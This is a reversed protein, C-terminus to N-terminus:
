EPDNICQTDRDAAGFTLRGSPRVIRGLGGFASITMLGICSLTYPSSVSEM